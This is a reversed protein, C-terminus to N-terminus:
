FEATKRLLEEIRLNPQAKGGFVTGVKVRQFHVYSIHYGADPLPIYGTSAVLEKGQKLFFEVFVRVEPNAQATKANVYIFLPRSLPQYEAKEVTERSPSVAGKGSDIALSRLKDKNTEYYSLGFYGLANPDKSIGAVLIEDDESAIYDTRSVRSKGNVVETFYDFTGSDKGAGYLVIPQNPWTPRIQQWRVIKGQASPEWLTKLEALTIDKAWSNQPNVTITLADFAIPLEIYAIGTQRCAAMEESNIPRSANAIDTEGQCFKKFGGSTGSISINVATPNAQKQRYAKAVADTIPFVTSSGDIRIPSPSRSEAPSCANLLTAGLALVTLVVLSRQKGPANM